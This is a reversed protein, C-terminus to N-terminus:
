QAAGTTVRVELLSCFMTVSHVDWVTPVEPRDITSPVTGDMEREEENLIGVAIRTRSERRGRGHREKGRGGM